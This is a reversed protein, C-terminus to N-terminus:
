TSRKSLLPYSLHLNSLLMNFLLVNSPLPNPLLLNPLLLLNLDLVPHWAQSTYQLRHM